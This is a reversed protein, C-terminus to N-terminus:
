CIACNVFNDDSCGWFSMFQVVGGCIIFIDTTLGHSITSFLRARFCLLRGSGIELLPSAAMSCNM